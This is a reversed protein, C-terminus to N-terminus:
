RTSNIKSRSAVKGQAPQWKCFASVGQLGDRTPSPECCGHQEVTPKEILSVWGRLEVLLHVFV